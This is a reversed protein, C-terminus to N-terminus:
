LADSPKLTWPNLEWEISIRLSRETTSQMKVRDAIRFGAVWVIGHADFIVPIQGRLRRPVGADVFIDQLKREGPAGLPRYRDGPCWARVLLTGEVTAADLVAVDGGEIAQPGAHTEVSLCCHAADLCVRGPTPLTQEVIGAPPEAGTPAALFVLRAAEHLVRVGPLHVQQGMPLHQINELHDFSIDDLRGGRVESIARRWLRWRLAHPLEMVPPLAIGGPQWQRVRAYEEDARSELVYSDERAMEALHHLRQRLRPAYDRELLPLLELRIRNRTMELSANTADVRYALGREHCHALIEERWVELLPRVINGRRAPIGALGAVGTGRLLRMLVTEAQDDATHGTVIRQADLGHAMEQLATYRLERAAEEVSEGADAMRARVNVQRQAYPLAARAALHAVFAADAGAEPRLGHNVHAVALRLHATPQIIRLLDLLAVSDPGGSVAVLLLDGSQWLGEEHAYAQVREALPLM